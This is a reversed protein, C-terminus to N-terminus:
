QDSSSQTSEKEKTPPESLKAMIEAAKKKVFDLLKNHELIAVVLDCLLVYEGAFEIEYLDADLKPSIVSLLVLDKIFIPTGQVDLRKFLGGVIKGINIEVDLFDVKHDSCGEAAGATILALAVVTEIGKTAPLTQIQFDKGGINLSKQSLAM